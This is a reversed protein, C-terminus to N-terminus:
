CERRDLLVQVYRDKPCRPPRVHLYTRRLVVARLALDSALSDFDAWPTSAAIGVSVFPLGSTIAVWAVRDPSSPM